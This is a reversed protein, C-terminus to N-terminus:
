AKLLTSLNTNLTNWDEQKTLDLTTEEVKDNNHNLYQYFANKNSFNINLSIDHNENMWEAQVGGNITPYLYPLPLNKSYLSEFSASIWELDQKKPATGEGNLWGDKLLLFEQLRNNINLEDLPRGFIIDGKFTVLVEVPGTIEPTEELIIQGKNYIGRRAGQM